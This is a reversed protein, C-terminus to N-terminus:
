LSWDEFRLDPIDRFDRANLTVLAAGAVIATAAIMRDLIRTRSFGCREVIHAYVAAERGGFPLEELAALMRDVRPRLLRTLAPDKYVGGELEVRTIVSLMSTGLREALRREVEPDGDRLHIAVSTDLLTRL